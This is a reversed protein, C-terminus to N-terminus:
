KRLTWPSMMLNSARAVRSDLDGFCSLAAFGSLSSPVVLNKTDKRSLINSTKGFKKATYNEKVSTKSGSCIYYSSFLRKKLRKSLNTYVTQTETGRHVSASLSLPVTHGTSSNCHRNPLLHGESHSTCEPSCTLFM